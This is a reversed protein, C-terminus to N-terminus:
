SKKKLKIFGVELMIIAIGLLIHEYRRFLYNFIPEKFSLILYLFGYIMVLLFFSLIMIWELDHHKKTHLFFNGVIFITVLTVLYIIYSKKHLQYKEAERHFRVHDNYIADIEALDGEKKIRIKNSILYDQSFHKKVYNDVDRKLDQSALEYDLYGREELSKAINHEITTYYDHDELTDIIFHDNLITLSFLVITITASLLISALINLSWWKM